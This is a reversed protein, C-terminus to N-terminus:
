GSPPSPTDRAQRSLSRYGRRSSSSLPTALVFFPSRSSSWSPGYASPHVGRDSPASTTVRAARSGPPFTVFREAGNIARPHGFLRVSASRLLSRGRRQDAELGRAEIRSAGGRASRCGTANQRGTCTRGNALHCERRERPHGRTVEGEAPDGQMTMVVVTEVSELRGGRSRTAVPCLSKPSRTSWRPEPPLLPQVDGTPRQTPDASSAM